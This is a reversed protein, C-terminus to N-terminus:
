HCHCHWHCPRRPNPRLRLHLHPVTLQAHQFHLSRVFSAPVKWSVHQTRVKLSVFALAASKTFRINSSRSSIIAGAKLIVLSPSSSAMNMSAEFSDGGEGEGENSTNSTSPDVYRLSNLREVLDQVEHAADENHVHSRLFEAFTKAPVSGVEGGRNCLVSLERLVKRSREKASEDRPNSLVKSDIPPLDGM